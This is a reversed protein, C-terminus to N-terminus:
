SRSNGHDGGVVARFRAADRFSFHEREGLILHDLFRIGLEGATNELRETLVSDDPSPSPEGSPHNHACLITAASERLAAAFVERPQVSCSTFGGRALHVLRLPRHQADLLLVVFVEERLHRVHPDILAAAAQASAIPPSKEVPAHSRRALEFACAIAAGARRRGLDRVLQRPDLRDLGRVGGAKTLLDYIPGLADPDREGAIAAILEATSLAQTGERLARSTPSEQPPWSSMDSVCQLCRAM